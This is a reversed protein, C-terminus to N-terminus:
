GAQGSGQVIVQLKLGLGIPGSFMMDLLRTVLLIGATAYDAPVLARLEIGDALPLAQADATMRLRHKHNGRVRLGVADVYAFAMVM